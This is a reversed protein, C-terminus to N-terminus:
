DWVGRGSAYTLVVRGFTVPLGPPLTSSHLLLRFVSFRVPPPRSRRRPYRSQPPSRWGHAEDGEFGQHRAHPGEFAGEAHARRTSPKIVRRATKAKVPEASKTGKVTKKLARPM